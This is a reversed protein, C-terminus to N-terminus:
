RRYASAFRWILGTASIDQTTAMGALSTLGGPWAHGGGYITYLQLATGNACGTFQTLQVTTGDNVRDPLSNALVGGCKQQRVWFNMTDAASAMAAATGAFAGDYPVITDATGLFYMKPRQKAPACVSSLGRRLTAADIGFAAIKDSLECALRESMFAGSSYGAAYVRTADVGQASLTDILASIFKVDDASGTSPDDKWQGGIAEPMVAWFGQTAAFDAVMTLNAMVEPATGNPHLLMLLPAGRVVVSPRMLVYRRSVGNVNLNASMATMGTALQVNTSGIKVYSRTVPSTLTLFGSVPDIKGSPASTAAAAVGSAAAVTLALLLSAAYYTKMVQKRNHATFRSDAM